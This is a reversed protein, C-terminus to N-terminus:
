WASVRALKDVDSCVRHRRRRRKAHNLKINLLYIKKNENNKGDIHWFSTIRYYIWGQVSEPLFNLKSRNAKGGGDEFTRVETSAFVSGRFLRCNNCWRRYREDDGNYWSCHVHLYVISIYLRMTDPPTATCKFGTRGVRVRLTFKANDEYVARYSLTTTQDYRVM